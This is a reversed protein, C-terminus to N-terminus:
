GCGSCRAPDGAAIATAVGAINGTGVTAALATMLAQFHSIDGEADAERRRVFALHLAHCLSRFQVGKLLVTLYLGTGGLLVLMPLGWVLAQVNGVYDLLTNEM